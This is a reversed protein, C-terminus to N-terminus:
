AADKRASMGTEESALMLPGYRQTMIPGLTATVVILVFVVDLIEGTILREGAPNFTDHGVLPVFKTNAKDTTTRVFDVIAKKAAGDNWSPLPDTQALTQVV